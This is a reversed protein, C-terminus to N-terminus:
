FDKIIDLVESPTNAVKFLNLDEKDIMKDVLLTNIFFGILPEWFERNYFVIPVKPSKGTQILTLIESVEDLTGFGGPLVVYGNSYKAFMVKRTFFHDFKIEMDIYPNSKQEEPLKITLGISLANGDYAGKNAAEMIGPGGGTVITYGANSLLYAIEYADEYYQKQSDSRASGFISISPTVVSLKMDGDQLETLVKLLKDNNNKM